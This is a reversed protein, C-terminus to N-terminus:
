SECRCEWTQWSPTSLLVDGRALWYLQQVLRSSTPMGEQLANHPGNGKSLDVGSGKALEAFLGVLQNAPSRKPLLEQLHSAHPLSKKTICNTHETTM